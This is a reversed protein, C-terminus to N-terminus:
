VTIRVKERQSVITSQNYPIPTRARLYEPMGSILKIEIEKRINAMIKIMITAM